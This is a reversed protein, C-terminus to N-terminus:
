ASSVLPDLFAVKIQAQSSCRVVAVEWLCLRIPRKPCFSQIAFWKAGCCRAFDGIGLCGASVADEGKLIM